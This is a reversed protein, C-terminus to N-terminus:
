ARGTLLSVPAVSSHTQISVFVDGWSKSLVTSSELFFVVLRTDMKWLIRRTLHAEDAGGVVEMKETMAEGEGKEAELNQHDQERVM